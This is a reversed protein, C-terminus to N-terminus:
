VLDEDDGLVRRADAEARESLWLGDELLRSNADNRGARYGARYANVMCNIRGFSWMAIVTIWCGITLTAGIALPRLDHAILGLILVVLGFWLGITSAYAAVAYRTAMM